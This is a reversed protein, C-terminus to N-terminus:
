AYIVHKRDFTKLLLAFCIPACAFLRISMAAEQLKGGVAAGSRSILMNEHSVCSLGNVAMGEILYMEMTKFVRIPQDGTQM